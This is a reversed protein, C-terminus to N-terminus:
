EMQMCTYSVTRSRIDFQRVGLARMSCMSRTAVVCQKDGVRVRLSATVEGEIEKGPESGSEKRGAGVSVRVEHGGQGECDIIKRM